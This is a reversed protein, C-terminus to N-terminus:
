TRAHTEKTEITQFGVLIGINGVTGFRASDTTLQTRKNLNTALFTKRPQDFPLSFSDESSFPHNRLTEM